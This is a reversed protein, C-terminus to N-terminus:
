CAFCTSLRSATREDHPRSGPQEHLKEFVRTRSDDIPVADM